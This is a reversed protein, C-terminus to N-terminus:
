RADEHHGAFLPSAADYSGKAQKEGVTQVRADEADHAIQTKLAALSEFKREERVREIVHICLTQGYLDGSFDHLFVEATPTQDIAVTPRLGLNMVGTSLARYEGSARVADVTVSYVGSPPLVEPPTGLNATPFGLTRGRQAGRVVVGSLSHPRGLLGRTARLDGEAIAARVRTSSAVSGAHSHLEFGYVGFRHESSSGWALGMAKLAALDGARGRGFRFDTGVMVVAADLEGVLLDSVFQEATCEALALSFETTHVRSVGIAQLLRSKREPTTIRPVQARGLRPGLVASPHPEFTLATLELPGQAHTRAMASAQDIMAQHGVHVGDFNGIVVLRKV